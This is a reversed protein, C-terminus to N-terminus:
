VKEKSGCSCALGSWEVRGTPQRSHITLCGGRGGEVKVRVYVEIGVKGECYPEM